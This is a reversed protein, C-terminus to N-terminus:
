GHIKSVLLRIQGVALQYAHLISIICCYENHTPKRNSSTSFVALLMYLLTNSLSVGDSHKQKVNIFGLSAIVQMGMVINQPIGSSLRNVLYVSAFMKLNWIPISLMFEVSWCCMFNNNLQWPMNWNDQPRPNPSIRMLFWSEMSNSIGNMLQFGFRKVWSRYSVGTIDPWVM